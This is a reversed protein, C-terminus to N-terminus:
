HNLVDHYILPEKAPTCLSMGTTVGSPRTPRTITHDGLERRPDQQQGVFAEARTRDDALQDIRAQNPTTRPL